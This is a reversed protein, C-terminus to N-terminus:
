KNGLILDKSKDNNKVDKENTNNNLQEPIRKNMILFKIILFTAIAVIVLCSVVIGVIAGVSLGSGSKKEPIEVNTGVKSNVILKNTNDEKSAFMGNEFTLYKTKEDIKSSCSIIQNDLNNDTTKFKCTANVKKNNNDKLSIEYEKEGSIQSDLDAIINFTLQDKLAINSTNRITMKIFTYKHYEEDLSSSEIENVNLAKKETEFGQITKNENDKIEMQTPEISLIEYDEDENEEFSCKFNALYGANSNGLADGYQDCIISKNVSIIEDDLGRLRLYRYRDGTIIKKM